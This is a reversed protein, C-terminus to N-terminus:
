GAYLKERKATDSEYKILKNDMGKDSDNIFHEALCLDRPEEM